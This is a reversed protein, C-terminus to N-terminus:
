LGDFWRRARRQTPRTAKQVPASNGLCVSAFSSGPDYFRSAVEAPALVTLMEILVPPPSAGAEVRHDTCRDERSEVQAPVHETDAVPILAEELVIAYHGERGVRDASERVASARNQTGRVASVRESPRGFSRIAGDLEDVTGILDDLLELTACQVGQEGDAPVARQGDSRLQGLFPERDTGLVISLSRAAVWTVNPKWVATAVAVSAM